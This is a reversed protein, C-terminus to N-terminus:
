FERLGMAKFEDKEFTKMAFLSGQHDTSFNLESSSGDSNLNNGTETQYKSVLFV